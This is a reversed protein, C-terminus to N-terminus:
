VSAGIKLNKAVYFSIVTDKNIRIKKRKSTIKSWIRMLTLLLNELLPCGPYM